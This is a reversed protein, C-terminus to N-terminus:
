EATIRQMLSHIAWCFRDIPTLTTHPDGEHIRMTKRTEKFIWLGVACLMTGGIAAFFASQWLRTAGECHCFAVFM